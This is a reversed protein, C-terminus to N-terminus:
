YVLPLQTNRPPSGNSRNQHPNKQPPPIHQNHEPSGPPPSHYPLIPRPPSTDESLGKTFSYRSSISISEHFQRTTGKRQTERPDVFERKRSKYKKKWRAKSNAHNM